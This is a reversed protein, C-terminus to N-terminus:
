RLRYYGSISRPKIVFITLTTYLGCDCQMLIQPRAFEHSVILLFRNTSFWLFLTSVSKAFDFSHKTSTFIIRSFKKPHEKRLIKPLNFFRSHIWRYKWILLSFSSNLDYSSGLLYNKSYVRVVYKVTSQIWESVDFKIVYIKQPFINGKKFSFQDDIELLTINNKCDRISFSVSLLIKLSAVKM